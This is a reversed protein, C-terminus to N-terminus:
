FGQFEPLQEYCERHLEELTIITGIEVENLDPPNIDYYYTEDYEVKWVKILSDNFYECNPHHNTIQNLNLDTRCWNICECIENM